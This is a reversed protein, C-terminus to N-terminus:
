LIFGYRKFSKKIIFINVTTSILSHLIDTKCAISILFIGLTTSLTKRTFGHKVNSIIPGFAISVLLILVYFLEDNTM